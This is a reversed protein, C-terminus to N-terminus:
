RGIELAGSDIRPLQAEGVSAIDHEVTIGFDQGGTSGFQFPLFEIPDDGQHRSATQGLAGFPAGIRTFHPAAAIAKGDPSPLFVLHCKASTRATNASTGVRKRPGLMGRARSWSRRGLRGIWQCGVRGEVMVSAARSAASPQGWPVVTPASWCVAPM